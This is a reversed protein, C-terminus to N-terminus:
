EHEEGHWVALPRDDAEAPIPDYGLRQYAYRVPVGLMRLAKVAASAAEEARVSAESETGAHGAGACWDLDAPPRGGVMVAWRWGPVYTPHVATDIPHVVAAM